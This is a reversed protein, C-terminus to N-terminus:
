LRDPVGAVGEKRCAGNGSISQPPQCDSTKSPDSRQLMSKISKGASEVVYVKMKSKRVVEEYM